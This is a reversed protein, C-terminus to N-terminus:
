EKHVHINISQKYKKPTKNVALMFFNDMMREIEGQPISSDLIVTNWEAKNMLTLRKVIFACFNM